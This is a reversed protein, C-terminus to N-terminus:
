NMGTSGFGSSGRDTESLVKTEAFSVRPLAHIILQAIRSNKEVEYPTPSANHLIVKIPGRYDSDIVGGGVILRSKLALGSREAIQAYYGPEMEIAINTNVAKTEGPPIVLNEDAYLDHGAAEASGRTPITATESLRNVKIIKSM